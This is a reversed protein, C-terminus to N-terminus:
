KSGGTDIVSFHWDCRTDIFIKFTGGRSFKLVEDHRSGTLHIEPHEFNTSQDDSNYIIMDYRNLDALGESKQKSCDYSYKLEWTGPVTFNGSPDVHLNSDLDLIDSKSLLQTNCGGVSVAMLGAALLGLLRRTM